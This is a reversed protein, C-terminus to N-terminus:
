KGKSPHEDYLRIFDQIAQKTVPEVLNLGSVLSIREDPLPFHGCGNWFWSHFHRFLIYDIGFWRRGWVSQAVKIVSDHTNGYGSAIAVQGDEEVIRLTDPNTKALEKLEDFTPNLFVPSSGDPWVSIRM